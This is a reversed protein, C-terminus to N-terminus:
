LTTSFSHLSLAAFSKADEEPVGFETPAANKALNQKEEAKKRRIKSWLWSVGKDFWSFRTCAIVATTALWASLGISAVSPDAHLSSRSMKWHVLSMLNERDTRIFFLVSTVIGLAACSCTTVLHLTWLGSEPWLFGRSRFVPVKAVSYVVLVMIVGSFIPVIIGVLGLDVGSVSEIMICLSMLVLSLFCASGLWPLFYFLLWMGSSVLVGAACSLLINRISDYGSTIHAIASSTILGPVLPGLILLIVFAHRRMIVITLGSVICCANLAITLPALAVLSSLDDMPDASEVTTFLAETTTLNPDSSMIKASPNTELM